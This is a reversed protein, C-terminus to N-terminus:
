VDGLSESAVYLVGFVTSMGREELSIKRMGRRRELQVHLNLREENCTRSWELLRRLDRM